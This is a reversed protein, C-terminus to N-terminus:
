RQPVLPAAVRADQGGVVRVTTSWPQYGELEVRVTHAGPTIGPVKAPTTGVFRGDVLVRAGAPRSTVTLSVDAAPAPTGAPPATERAPAPTQGRARARQLEFMMERSANDPTITIRQNIPEYGELVVRVTHTGFTMDRKTLPTRGTWVGDIVVMANGPTSRVLLRGSTPAAPAAANAPTSPSTAPESPAPVPVETLPPPEAVPPSSEAQPAPDESAVEAGGRGWIAYGLLLGLALAGAGWLLATSLNRAPVDHVVTASPRWTDVRSAAAPVAPEDGRWAQPQAEDEEVSTDYDFSQAAALAASQDIPSPEVAAPVPEVRNLDLDFDGLAEDAEKESTIDLDGTAFGPPPWVDPEAPEQDPEEVDSTDEVDDITEIPEDDAPKDPVAPPEAPSEDPEIPEPAGAADADAEADDTDFLSPAAAVAAAAAARAASAAASAGAPDVRQGESAAELADVFAAASEFRASPDEALARALVERLRARHEAPVDAGFSGDQEGPGAPRRGTLLEHAIAGLSFVDAEAGWEDGSVREPATYPRRTPARFGINEIAQVIGFGTARAEDTTLFVDRPHLAGHLIGAGAAADLAGAVQRLFPMVRAPNAPAYHKMAMDLSEAAVYEQALYPLHGEMGAAVPQVIGPHTLGADVIRQLETALLSSQEPLLDIRFAKVAILRDREPEYTRFVPGLVGSGIQHLVRFPGFAAPPSFSSPDDHNLESAGRCFDACGLM